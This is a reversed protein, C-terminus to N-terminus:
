SSATEDRSESSEDRPCDCKDRSSVREGACVGADAAGAGCGRRGGSDAGATGWGFGRSGDHSVSEEAHRRAMIRRDAASASPAHGGAAAADSAPATGREPGAAPRGAVASRLRLREQSQEVAAPWLAAAAREGGALLGCPTRERARMRSPPPVAGPGTVPGCVATHARAGWGERAAAQNAHMRPPGCDAATAGRLGGVPATRSHARRLAASPRLPREPGSRAGCLSQPGSLATLLPGAGSPGPRPSPPDPRSPHLATRPAGPRPEPSQSESRKAPAGRARVRLPGEGSKGEVM